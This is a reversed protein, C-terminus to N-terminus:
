QVPQTEFSDFFDDEKTTKKSSSSTYDKSFFDDENNTSKKGYKDDIVEWDDDEKPQSPKKFTLVDDQKISRIGGAVSHAARSRGVGGMGLRDVSAAKTPDKAVKAQFINVKFVLTM